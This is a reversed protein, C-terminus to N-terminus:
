RFVARVKDWLSANERDGDPKSPAPQAVSVPDSAPFSDILGAELKHHTDRDAKAAERSSEAHKDRPAPNFKEAM